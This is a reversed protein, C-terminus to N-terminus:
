NVMETEIPLKETNAEATLSGLAEAINTIAEVGPNVYRAFTVQQTHGSVKQIFSSPQHTQVMRTVASHRLDHWKLGVIGADKCASQWATKFTSYTNGYCFVLADLEQPSENWLMMLADSLRPTMGVTRTRATKTNEAIITITRSPFDVHKWRLKFLEGRRAATDVAAYYLPLLHIRRRRGQLDPKNFAEILRREEDFTIVRERRTEDAKSILADGMAFPSNVLWGQRVCFRLMARLMELERNVSSIQRQGGHMTPTDLRHLKYAEIDSHRISKIRKKGFYETLANLACLAPAVSKLGGVKRGNILKAPFLKKEEYVKAAQAFTVRDTNIDSGGTSQLEKLKDQVLKHAHTKDKAPMWIDMRKGDPLAYRVRGYWKGNKQIEAGRRIRPMERIERKKERVLLIESTTM